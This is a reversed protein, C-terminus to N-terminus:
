KGVVRNTAASDAARAARPQGGPLHEIQIRRARRRQGFRTRWPRRPYLSLEERHPFSSSFAEKGSRNAMREMLKMTTEKM